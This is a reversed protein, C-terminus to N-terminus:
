RFGIKRTKSEFHRFEKDTSALEFDEKTIVIKESNLNRQRIACKALTREYLNRVFRANSFQKSEVFHAPLANFYEAAKEFLGEEAVYPAKVMTKFILGLEERNFNPFEIVYPMRSALGQNGEMLKEMENPYGAMIVLLDSRNNEMEAILTDLAERGYDKGDNDGRYLSYAEDIFLISGYADRCMASTKPATEGIYRGCFDRGAYEFFNGIRLVGKDKLVKGIIRAVTTKGTGPNGIFRMHICPSSAGTARAIEIQAIIEEVRRKIKDGGIMGDLTEMGVDTNEIKVCIAKVEEPNITKDLAGAKSCALLKQYLIESVVKEVTSFGYFKGDRKEQFIKEDFSNWAEETLTFSHEGLKNQAYKRLEEQTLAPFSVGKLFAMDTIGEKVREFIEANVCPIRYVLVFTSSKKNIERIFSRLSRNNVNTMWESIDLCVLLQNDPNFRESLKNFLDRLGGFVEDEKESGKNPVTLEAVSQASLKRLGLGGLLGAFLSLVTSLGYGTNISFLYNQNLICELSGSQKAMPAIAVLERALAKFEEAGVLNEIKTLYDSENSFCDDFTIDEQKEESKLDEFLSKEGFTALVGDKADGEKSIGLGDGFSKEVKKDNISFLSKSEDAPASKDDVLLSSLDIKKAFIGSLDTVTLVSKYDPENYEERLLKVVSLIVQNASVKNQDFSVSVMDYLHEECKVGEGYTKGFMDIIESVILGSSQKALWSRSIEFKLKM